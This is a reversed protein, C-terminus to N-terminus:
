TEGFVSPMQDIFLQMKPTRVIPILFVQFECFVSELGERCTGDIKEFFIIVKDSKFLNGDLKKM